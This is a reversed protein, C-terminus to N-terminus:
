VSALGRVIPANISMLIAYDGLANSNYKERPPEGFVRTETKRDTGMNYVAVQDNQNSKNTSSQSTPKNLGSSKPSPAPAPKNKKSFEIFGDILQGSTSYPNYEIEKKAWNKFTKEDFKRGEKLSLAFSSKILDEIQEPTIAKEAGNRQKENFNNEEILTDLKSQNNNIHNWINFPDVMGFTLGKVANGVGGLVSGTKYLGATYDLGTQVMGATMLPIGVGFGAGSAVAGGLIKAGSSNVSNVPKGILNEVAEKMESSVFGVENLVANVPNKRVNEFFNYLNKAPVVRNGLVKAANVEIQQVVSLDKDSKGGTIEETTSDDGGLKVKIWNLAKLITIINNGVNKFTLDFVDKLFEGWSDPMGTIKRFKKWNESTLVHDLTLGIIIPAAVGFLKTLATRAGASGFFSIIGILSDFAGILGGRKNGEEVSTGGKWFNKFNDSINKLLDPISKGRDFVDPKDELKTDKKLNLKENLIKKIDECCEDSPEKEPFVFKDINGKIYLVNDAIADLTLAMAYEIDSDDDITNDLKESKGTILSSIKEDLKSVDEFSKSIKDFGEHVGDIILSTNKRQDSLLNNFSVTIQKDNKKISSIVNDISKSISSFTKKMEDYVEDLSISPFIEQEKAPTEKEEEFILPLQKSEKEESPKVRKLM